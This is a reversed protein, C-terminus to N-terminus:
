CRCRCTSDPSTSGKKCWSSRTDGTAAVSTSFRRAPRAGRPLGRHVRGRAVDARPDHVAAHAPLGRRLDGRVLAEIAQAPAAARGAGRSAADRARRGYRRGAGRDCAAAACVVQGPDVPLPPPTAYAAAPLSPLPPVMPRVAPAAPPADLPADVLELDDESALEDSGLGADSRRQAEEAIHALTHALPSLNRESDGEHMPRSPIAGQDAAAQEHVAPEEPAGARRPAVPEEHLALPEEHLALPEEHLSRSKTLAGAARRSLAPLSKTFSRSEAADEAIAAEVLSGLDLVPPEEAPSPAALAEPAEHETAIPPAEIRPEEVPEPIAADARAPAPTARRRQRRSRRPRRAPTSTSRRCSSGSREPTAGSRLRRRRRRLRPRRPPAAPAKPAAAAPTKPAALPPPTM